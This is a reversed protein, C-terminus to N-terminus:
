KSSDVRCFGSTRQHLDGMNFDLAEAALLNRYLVTEFESFPPDIFM